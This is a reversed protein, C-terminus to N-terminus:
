WFAFNVYGRKGYGGYENYTNKSFKGYRDPDPNFLAGKPDKKWNGFMIGVQYFLDKEDKPIAFKYFKFGENNPFHVVVYDYSRGHDDKEIGKQIVKGKVSKYDGNYFLRYWFVMDGIKATTIKKTPSNVAAVITELPIDKIIKASANTPAFSILLMLSMMTAFAVIASSLGKKTKERIEKLSKM